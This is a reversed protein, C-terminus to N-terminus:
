GVKGFPAQVIRGRTEKGPQYKRRSRPYLVRKQLSTIRPNLQLNNSLSIAHDPELGQEDETILYIDRETATSLIMGPSLGTPPLSDYSTMNTIQKNSSYM